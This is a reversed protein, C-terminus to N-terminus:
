TDLARLTNIVETKLLDFRKGLFIDYIDEVSNDNSAWLQKLDSPIFHSSPSYSGMKSLYDNPSMSSIAQNSWSSIKTRNLVSNLKNGKDKRIESSSELINSVQSKIPFIHHDHLDLIKQNGQITLMDNNIINWTTLPTDESTLDMPQGNLIFSLIIHEIAAQPRNDKEKYLLVNKSSYGSAEFVLDERQKFPNGSNNNVWGILENLDDVMYANQNERFRGSFCSVWYWYELKKLTKKDNWHKDEKLIFAIPILMLQYPLDNLVQIGCHTAAFALARKLSLVALESNKNIQEHTLELHKGRKIMELAIPDSTSSSKSHCIVSLINLYQKRFASTPSTDSIVGMNAVTLDGPLSAKKLYDLSDTLPIASELYSLIRVSLPEVSRDKAAKAVVLDYTDLKTGANNVGEFIAIGRLIEEAPLEITSIEFSLLNKLFTTIDKTWNARLDSWLDSIKEKNKLPDKSLKTIAPNISQLYEVLLSPDQECKSKLLDVRNQAINQVAWEFVGKQTGHLVKTSDYIDFLPILHQDAAKKGIITCRELAGVAKGEEDLPNFGPHYWKDTNKKGSLILEHKFINELDSPEYKTLGMDINFNLNKYGFLDLRNEFTGLDIFWRHKLARPIDEWNNRWNSNYEVSSSFIDYFISRITSLRQQGDLLYTCEAAPIEPIRICLKTSSFDDKKGNLLLLSGVPLNVFITRLLKDQQETKWVYERQFNPLVLKHKDYLEFISVITKSNYGLTMKFEGKGLHIQDSNRTDILNNKLCPLGSLLTSLRLAGWALQETRTQSDLLPM